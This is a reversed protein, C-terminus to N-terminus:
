VAEREPNAVPNDETSTRQVPKSFTVLFIRGYSLRMKKYIQRSNREWEGRFCRSCNTPEVPRLSAM